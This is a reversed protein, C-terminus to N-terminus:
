GLGLQAAIVTGSPYCDFRKIKGDVLEFVDCCPADMRRGTPPVTGAPLELPGTHTGQLRLQVVVINGTVYVRELERHMDPFAKAYVEVTKGLEAPGRYTFPISTDTFTGDETFAAVWGAIDQEEAVQYAARIIKENDYSM